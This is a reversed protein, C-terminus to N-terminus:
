KWKCSQVGVQSVNNDNAEYEETVSVSNCADPRGDLWRDTDTQRGLCRGVGTNKPKGQSEAPLSDVQLAPSRPKIGPNPLNGWLISLGSMGTNQGPSNWLSYLGHPRLSDSVVSHSESESGLYLITSIDWKHLEYELEGWQFIFYLDM